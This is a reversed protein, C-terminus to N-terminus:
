GGSPGAQMDALIEDLLEQSGTGKEKEKGAQRGEKGEKLEDRRKEREEDGETHGVGPSSARQMPPPSTLFNEPVGCPFHANVCGPLQTANDSPNGASSRQVAQILSQKGEERSSQSGHQQQQQSTPQQSLM